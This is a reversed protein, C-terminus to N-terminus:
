RQLYKVAAELVEDRGERIGRITPAVSIDPQVGVRQLQRRVFAAREEAPGAAIIRNQLLAHQLQERSM